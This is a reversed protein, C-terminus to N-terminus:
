PNGRLTRRDGHQATNVSQFANVSTRQSFLNKRVLPSGGETWNAVPNVPLTSTWNMPGSFM